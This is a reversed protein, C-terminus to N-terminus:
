LRATFLVAVVMAIFSFIAYLLDFVVQFVEVM